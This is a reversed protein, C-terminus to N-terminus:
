DEQSGGGGQAYMYTQENKSKQGAAGAPGGYKKRNGTTQTRLRIGGRWPDPHVIYARYLTYIAYIYPIYTHLVARYDVM